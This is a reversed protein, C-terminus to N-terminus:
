KQLLAQRPFGDEVTADLTETFHVTMGDRPIIIKGAYEKAAVARALTEDTHPASLHVLGLSKVHNDQATKAAQQATFHGVKDAMEENGQIYTAETIFCSANAAIDKLSDTYKTDSTYGLIAKPADPSSLRIGACPVSHLTLFATAAFDAMFFPEGPQITHIDIAYAWTEPIIEFAYVDLLKHIIETVPAIAYIPLATTRGGLRLSEILSPLGGIHDIHAHTIFVADISEANKGARLINRYPDGGCDILVTKDRSENEILLSTNARDLSPLAAGTGLFTVYM